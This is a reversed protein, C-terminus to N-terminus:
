PSSTVMLETSLSLPAPKPNVLVPLPVSVSEPPFLKLLGTMILAPVSAVVVALVETPAMETVSLAPKLTTEVPTPKWNLADELMVSPVVAPAATPNSRPPNPLGVTAGSFTPPLIAPLPVVTMLTASASGCNPCNGSMLYPVLDPEPVKVTPVRGEPTTAVM